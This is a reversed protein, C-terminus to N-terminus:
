RRPNRSVNAQEELTPGGQRDRTPHARHGATVPQLLCAHPHSPDSRTTRRGDGPRLRRLRRPHRRGRHLDGPAVATATGRRRGPLPDDPGALEDPGEVAAWQWGVRLVTAQPHTRLYGLKRSGGGAVVGVVPVGTVPRPLVGANAVSAHVTGGPRALAIVALGHDGLVLEAFRTIDIM